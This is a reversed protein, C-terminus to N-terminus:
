GTSRGDLSRHAGAARARGARAARAARARKALWRSSRCCSSTSSRSSSARRDRRRVGDRRAPLGELAAHAAGALPAARAADALRARAAHLTYNMHFAEDRLITTSSTARTRTAALVERYIAFRERPPRRAVPAPLRAAHRRERPRRRSRRPRARRARALEGRLGATRRRRALAPSCRAAARALVPRTGSSTPPTACTSGACCRTPRSSPPARSTAAATPRPRPSAFSSRRAGRPRRGLGLPPAPALLRDLGAARMVSKALVPSEVDSM